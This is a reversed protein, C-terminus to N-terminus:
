TVETKGMQFERTIRVMHRPREEEQAAPHESGMMFSGAQISAFEQSAGGISLQLPQEVAAMQKVPEVPKAAETGAAANNKRPWFYVGSIGAVVLAAVLPALWRARRKRETGVAEGSLAKVFEGCTTFRDESQKSLARMLAEGAEDPVKPDIARPDPPQEHVIMFSVRAWSDAEFPLRGTLMRCATVALSFQDARGDLTEGRLQEPSM